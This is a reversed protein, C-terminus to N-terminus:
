FRDLGKFVILPDHIPKLHTIHEILLPGTGGAVILVAERNFHAIGQHILGLQAALCGSKLAAPTNTGLAYTFETNNDDFVKQTQSTVSQTMLDLGPVIWGGLHIQEASIFDVTIATGADVVIVNQGPYERAAGLVGLWRDIGLTQFNDYACKVGFAQAQTVVEVVAAGTQRAKTTLEDVRSQHGVAAFTVQSVDYHEFIAPTYEIPTLQGKDSLVAKTRTNGIDVLLKARQKM